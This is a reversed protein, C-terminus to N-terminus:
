RIRDKTCIVVYLITHHMPQRQFISCVAFFSVGFGSILSRPGQLGIDLEETEIMVEM